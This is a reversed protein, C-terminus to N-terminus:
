VVEAPVLDTANVGTDNAPQAVSTVPVRPQAAPEIAGADTQAYGVGAITGCALWALLWTRGRSCRSANLTASRMAPMRDGIFPPRRLTRPLLILGLRFRYRETHAM